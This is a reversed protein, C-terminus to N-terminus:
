GVVSRSTTPAVRTTARTNTAAVMADQIAPRGRSAGAIEIMLHVQNHMAVFIGVTSTRHWNPLESWISYGYGRPAIWAAARPDAVTVTTDRRPLAGVLPAGVITNIGYM